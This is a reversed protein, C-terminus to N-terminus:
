VFASHVRVVAIGVVVTIIGKSRERAGAFWSERSVSNRTSTPLSIYHKWSKLM